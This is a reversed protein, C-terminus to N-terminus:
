ASRAPPKRHSKIHSGSRPSQARRQSTIAVPSNSKMLIEPPLGTASRPPHPCLSQTPPPLDVSRPLPLATRHSLATLGPSRSATKPRGPSLSPSGLRPLEPPSNATPKTHPPALQNLATPIELPPPQPSATTTRSATAHSSNPIIALKACPKSKPCYVFPDIPFRTNSEKKANAQGPFPKARKTREPLAALPVAIAM